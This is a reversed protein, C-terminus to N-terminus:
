GLKLFRLCMEKLTWLKPYRTNSSTRYLDKMRNKMEWVSGKRFGINQVVKFTRGLEVRIRALTLLVELSREDESLPNRRFYSLPRLEQVRQEIQEHHASFAACWEDDGLDEESELQERLKIIMKIPKSYLRVIASDALELTRTAAMSNIQLEQNPSAQLTTFM